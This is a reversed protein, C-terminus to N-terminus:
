TYTPTTGVLEELEKELGKLKEERKKRPMGGFKKLKAKLEVLVSECKRIKEAYKKEEEDLTKKLLEYDEIDDKRRHETRIKKEEARKYLKQMYSREKVLEEKEEIQRMIAKRRSVVEKSEDKRETLEKQLTNVKDTIQAERKELDAMEKEIKETDFAELDENLEEIKAQAENMTEISGYYDEDIEKKSEIVNIINEPIHSKAVRLESEKVMIEKKLMIKRTEREKAEAIKEKEIEILNKLEEIRIVKEEVSRVEEVIEKTKAVTAGKVLEIIETQQEANSIRSLEEAQSKSIEGSKVAEGLQKNSILKLMESVWSEGKGLMAAITKNRWGTEQKLRYIVEGVDTPSTDVGIVNETLLIMLIESEPTDAPYVKATFEPLQAEKVAQFRMWGAIGDYHDPQEKVRRTIIDEIIGRKKVSEVMEQFARKQEDTTIEREYVFGRIQEPRVAITEPLYKAEKSTVEREIVDEDM